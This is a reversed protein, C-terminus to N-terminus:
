SRIAKRLNAQIAAPFEGLVQRIMWNTDPHEPTNLSELLFHATEATSRHSLATLAALVDPRLESPAARVWPSLLGFVAPLNEFKLDDILPLLARLGAQRVPRGTAHLWTEILKIYPLSAERRLRTTAKELVTRLIGDEPNSQIWADLATLIITAPAPRIAGLLRAALQRFELYDQEWLAQCLQLAAQSTEGGVRESALPTIEQTIQRLVPDPVMYTRVLMARKGVQGPRYTRDAYFDFLTHLERVFAQPQDILSALQAVQIKLRAPQIAPM